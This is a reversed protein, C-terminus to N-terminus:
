VPTKEKGDQVGEIQNDDFTALKIVSVLSKAWEAARQEYEGFTSDKRYDEHYNAVLEGRTDGADDKVIIDVRGGIETVSRLPAPWDGELRERRYRPPSVVIKIKM